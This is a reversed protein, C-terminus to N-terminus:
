WSKILKYTGNEFQYTKSFTKTADINVGDPCGILCGPGQIGITFSLGPSCLFSGYTSETDWCTSSIGTGGTGTEIYGSEYYNESNCYSNASKGKCYSYKYWVGGNAPNPV